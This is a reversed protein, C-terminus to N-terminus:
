RSQKGLAAAARDRLYAAKTNFWGDTWTFTSAYPGLFTKHHFDHYEAGGWFPLWRNPSWPFDYGSHVEVTQLVRVSLWALLTVFHDAMLLPGILTGVGLVMTEIPHAYEACM